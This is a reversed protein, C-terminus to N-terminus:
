RHKVDNDAALKNLIETINEGELNLEQKILRTNDDSLTKVYQDVAVTEFNYKTGEHDPKFDFQTLNHRGLM